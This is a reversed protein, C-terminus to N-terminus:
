WQGSGPIDEKHGLFRQLILFTDDSGVQQEHINKGMTNLYGQKKDKIIEAYEVGERM